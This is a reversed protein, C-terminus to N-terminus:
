NKFTQSMIENAKMMYEREATSALNMLSDAKAMAINNAIEVEDGKLRQGHSYAAAYADPGAMSHDSNRAGAFYLGVSLVIAVSAAIGSILCWNWKRRTPVTFKKLPLLGMLSRVEEIPQSTLPTRSLLYELEKEEVVSLRCDMYLRCLENLEEISLNIDNTKM